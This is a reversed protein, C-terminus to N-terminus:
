CFIESILASETDSIRECESEEVIQCVKYGPVVSISVNGARLTQREWYRIEPREVIYDGCATTSDNRWVTLKPLVLALSKHPGTIRIMCNRFFDADFFFVDDIGQVGDLTGHTEIFRYIGLVAIGEIHHILEAVLFVALFVPDLIKGKLVGDVTEAVPFAM